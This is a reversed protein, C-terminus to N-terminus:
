RPRTHWRHLSHPLQPSFPDLEPELPLASVGVEGEMVGGEMVRGLPPVRKRVIFACAAIKANILPGPMTPLKDAHATFATTVSTRAAKSQAELM